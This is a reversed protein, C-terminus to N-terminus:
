AEYRVKSARARGSTRPMRLFGLTFARVVLAERAQATPMM